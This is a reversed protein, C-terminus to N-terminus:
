AQLEAAKLEILDWGSRYSSKTRPLRSNSDEAMSVIWDESQLLSLLGTIQSSAQINDGLKDPLCWLRYKISINLM